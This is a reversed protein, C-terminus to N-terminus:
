VREKKREGDIHDRTKRMMDCTWHELGLSRSAMRESRKQKVNTTKKLAV